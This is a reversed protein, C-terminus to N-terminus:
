HELPKKAHRLKFNWLRRCINPNHKIDNKRAKIIVKVNQCIGLLGIGEKEFRQLTATRMSKCKKLPMAAYSFDAYYCNVRAQRLVGSIDKIKLEVAVIELMSPIRRGIRKAWKCGTLDCYGSLMVEHAVYYGGGRLWTEAIPRLNKETKLEETNDM